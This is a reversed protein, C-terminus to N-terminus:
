PYMRKRRYYKMVEFELIKLKRRKLALCKWYILDEPIHILPDAPIFHFDNASYNRGEMLVNMGIFFSWKKKYKKFRKELMNALWNEYDYAENIGSLIMGGFYNPVKPVTM